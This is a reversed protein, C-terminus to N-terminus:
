YDQQLQKIISLVVDFRELINSYLYCAAFFSQSITKRYSRKSALFIYLNMCLKIIVRDPVERGAGNELNTEFLRM